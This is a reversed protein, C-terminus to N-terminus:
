EERLIKWAAEIIQAPNVTDWAGSGMGLEEEMKWVHSADAQHKPKSRVYRSDPPISSILGPKRSEKRIRWRLFREVQEIAVDLDMYFNPWCDSPDITLCGDGAHIRALYHGRDCYHQRQQIGFLILGEDFHSTAVKGRILLFIEDNGEPHWWIPEDLTSLPLEMGQIEIMEM